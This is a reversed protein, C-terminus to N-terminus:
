DNPIKVARGDRRLPRPDLGARKLEDDVHQRKEAQRAAIARAEDEASFGYRTLGLKTMDARVAGRWADHPGLPRKERFVAQRCAASCLVHGRRTPKFWARCRKCKRRNRKARRRKNHATRACEPSCYRTAPPSIASNCISCSKVGCNYWNANRPALQYSRIMNVGVGLERGADKIRALDIM